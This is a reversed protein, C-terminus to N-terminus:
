NTNNGLNLELAPKDKSEENKMTVYWVGLAVVIVLLIILIANTTNGKQM